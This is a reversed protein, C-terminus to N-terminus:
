LLTFLLRILWTSQNTMTRKKVHDKKPCVNKRKTTFGVFFGSWQLQRRFPQSQVCPSADPPSIAASPGCTVKLLTKLCFETPSNPDLTRLRIRYTPAISDTPGLLTGILNRGTFLLKGFVVLQHHKRFNLEVFQFIVIKQSSSTNPRHCTRFLIYDSLVTKHLLYM